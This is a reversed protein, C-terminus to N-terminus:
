HQSKWLHEYWLAYLGTNSYTYVINDNLLGAIAKEIRKYGSMNKPMYLKDPNIGLRRAIRKASLTTGKERPWLLAVIRQRDTQPDAVIYEISQVQQEAPEPQGLVDAPIESFKRQAHPSEDGLVKTQASSKTIISRPLDITADSRAGTQHRGTQGVVKLHVLPADYEAM